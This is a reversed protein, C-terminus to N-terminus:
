RGTSGSRSLPNWKIGRKPNVLVPLIVMLLVFKRWVESLPLVMGISSTGRLTSLHRVAESIM